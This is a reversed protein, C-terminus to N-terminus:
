KYMWQDMEVRVLHIQEDKPVLDRALVRQEPSCARPLVIGRERCKQIPDTNNDTVLHLLQRFRLAVADRVEEGCPVKDFGVIAFPQSYSLQFTAHNCNGLQCV